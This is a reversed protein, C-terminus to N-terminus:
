IEESTSLDLLTYDKSSDYIDIVIYLLTIINSVAQQHSRCISKFRIYGIGVHLIFASFSISGKHNLSREIM